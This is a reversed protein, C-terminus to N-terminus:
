EEKISETIKFSMYKRLSAILGDRPSQQTPLPSARTLDYTPEKIDVSRRM